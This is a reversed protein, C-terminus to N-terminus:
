EGPTSPAETKEESKAEESEESASEADLEAQPVTGEVCRKRYCKNSCCIQNEGCHRHKACLQGETCSVKEPPPCGGEASEESGEDPQETSVDLLTEKSIPQPNEEEKEEKSEASKGEGEQTAEASEDEKDADANEGSEDEQSAAAAQIPVPEAVPVPAERKVISPEPEELSEASAQVEGQEVGEDEASM